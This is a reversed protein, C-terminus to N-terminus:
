CICNDHTDHKTVLDLSYLPSLQASERSDTLIHRQEVAQHGIVLFSAPIVLISGIVLISAPFHRGEGKSAFFFIVRPVIVDRDLEAAYQYVLFDDRNHAESDSDSEGAPGRAPVGLSPLTPHLGSM